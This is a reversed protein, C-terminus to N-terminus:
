LELGMRVLTTDSLDGIIRRRPVPSEKVLTPTALIKAEEAVAPCATVDVVTLDVRGAYSERCILELNYLARMSRSTENAVYLTLVLRQAEPKAAKAREKSM